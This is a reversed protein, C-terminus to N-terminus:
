GNLVQDVLRQIEPHKEADVPERQRFNAGLPYFYTRGRERGNTVQVVIGKRHVLVLRGDDVPDNLRKQMPPDLQQREDKIYAILEGNLSTTGLVVFKDADKRPDPPPPPPPRERPKQAVVPEAPKPRPAPPPPQYIKFINKSAIMNYALPQEQRLYDPPEIGADRLVDPNDLDLGELTPSETKPLRPVVLTSITMSVDLSPERAAVNKNKTQAVISEPTLDLRDLRKVYPRQYLDRLFYVVERLTARCRVTVPLEVFGERPSGKRTYRKPPKESIVLDDTLRYRQVLESIDRRFALTAQEVSHSLTRSTRQRWQKEASRAPLLERELNDRRKEAVAIRQRLESRPEIIIRQVAQWGGVLLVAGGVAGALIRERHTM